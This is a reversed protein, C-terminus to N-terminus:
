PRSEWLDRGPCGAAIWAALEDRRWLVRGGLRVPAPCRGSSLLSYWATRGIGCLRAAEAASVMISLSQCACSSNVTM